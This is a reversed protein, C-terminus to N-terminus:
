SSGCSSELLQADKRGSTTWDYNLDEVAIWNNKSGVIWLKFQWEVQCFTTSVKHIFNYYVTHCRHGNLACSQYLLYENKRLSRPQLGLMQICLM